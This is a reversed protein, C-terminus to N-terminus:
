GVDAAGAALRAAARDAADQKAQKEMEVRLALEDKMRLKAKEGEVIMYANQALLAVKRQLSAGINDENVEDLVKTYSYGMSEAGANVVEEVAKLKLIYEGATSEDKMVKFGHISRLVGMTVADCEEVTAILRTYESMGVETLLLSADPTVPVNKLGCQTMEDQMVSMVSMRETAESRLDGLIQGLFTSSKRDGTRTVAM